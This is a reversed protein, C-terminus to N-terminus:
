TKDNELNEAEFIRTKQKEQFKSGFNFDFRNKLMKMRKLFITKM